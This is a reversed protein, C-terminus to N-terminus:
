CHRNPDFGKIKLPTNKLLFDHFICICLLGMLCWEIIRFVEEQYHGGDGFGPAGPM